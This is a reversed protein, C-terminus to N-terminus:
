VLFRAALPLSAAGMARAVPGVTGERIEPRDRGAFDTEEIRRAVERVIRARVTEPLYGDIMITQVDVLSVATVAAHALAPVVQDLWAEIEDEVSSWELPLKLLPELDKGSAVIFQGLRYLSALDYLPRTSGDAQAIPLTGIAGARGTPGTYLHNDIVLGGGVYYGIFVHLFADRESCHTGFVLEAACPATADNIGQVRYRCRETLEAAFNRNQWALLKDRPVTVEDALHWIRAPTAVGLGEVRARQEPNLVEELADISRAVRDLVVDFDPWDYTQRDSARVAGTMDVLVHEIWSRGIAIGHFFAADPNLRMPVSPQGVRGRRPAERLLMGDQELARMIVSVTQASLGTLRAIEAKALPGDQRLISLVLRENHARVRTQNTGRMAGRIPDSAQLDSQVM